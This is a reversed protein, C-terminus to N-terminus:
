ELDERTIENDTMLAINLNLIKLEKIIQILLDREPVASLDIKEIVNGNEDTIKIQKFYSM